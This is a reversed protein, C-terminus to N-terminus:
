RNKKNAKNKVKFLISKIREKVQKYQETKCTAIIFVLAVILTIVIGDVIFGIIGQLHIISIAFGSIFFAIITIIFYYIYSKYYRVPSTKFENKHILYPEYTTLIFLKTVGTAILVGFMGIYRVLIISLVINAISTIFPMFSGKKFLGLTNRYTYNVYRIGDVYFNFGLALSIDIGLVYSQGIWINIFKNMLLTMAIGIYGYIIFLIFMIQYFVNEKKEKEKITNLNGISATLGNFFSKLLNTIASTIITYNSLLGVQNVGLFMSIIINDTGNSIVNGFQYFVLSKVDNFINRKENKDLKKYNKEQIYPYLKNAINSAIINDLMTAIIQLFLYIIYNHTAYLFLIQLINLIISVLLTVLSIIYEKQYGTIISKKYAFFYSISTNILFLVYILSLNENIKPQSKIIKGLFPIIMLGIILIILGIIFYASKYFHMLTKIREKNDEAIPKYMKFVIATGIGLEALSLMTLINTFLGNIGLYETGLIKIFVTRCIFSIITYIIKSVIAISANRASNKTRSETM